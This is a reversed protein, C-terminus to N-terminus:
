NLKEFTYIFNFNDRSKTYLKLINNERTIKIIIEDNFSPMLYEFIKHLAELFSFNTDTFLLNNEGDDIRIMRREYRNFRNEEEITLVPLKIM